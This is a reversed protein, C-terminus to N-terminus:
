WAFLLVYTGFIVVIISVVMFFQMTGDLYDYGGRWSTFDDVLVYIAFDLAVGVCACACCGKFLEVIWEM